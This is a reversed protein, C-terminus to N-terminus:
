SGLQQQVFELLTASNAAVTVSGPIPVILWEVTWSQTGNVSLPKYEGQVELEMYGSGPYVETDGENPAFSAAAVDPFRILFLNGSLAYALWTNTQGSIGGDAIVKPGTSTVSTQNKDDLWEYGGQPSLTWSTTNSILSVLPFFVLGGRPVRTIQWPAVQISKTAKITYAIKIWGTAADASFDKTVSAGLTSDAAGTLVLHDNTIAPTYANGDVAAVPPWINSGAPDGDWASQPSTWFTGGASNNCTSDAVYSACTYPQIMNTAGITLKSVRGGVQPNVDITVDGVTLQYDSASVKTPTVPSSSAGGTAAGGTATAGGPSTEGGAGTTGGTVSTSSKGGTAGGGTASSSKGGTAAGGTASTASAGGTAAGGTASAASSTGGTAPSGGTAATQGGVNASSSGGTANSAGGTNSKSGGTTTGIAGGTGGPGTSGPGDNSSCAVTTLGMVLLSALNLHRQSRAKSVPNSRDHTGQHQHIRVM